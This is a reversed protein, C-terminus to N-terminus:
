KVAAKGSFTWPFAQATSPSRPVECPSLCAGSLQPIPPSASPFPPDSGPTLAGRPSPSLQRVPERPGQSTARTCRAPQESSAVLFAVGLFVSSIPVQRHLGRGAGGAAPATSVRTTEGKDRGSASRPEPFLGGSRPWPGPSVDRQAGGPRTLLGSLRGGRCGNRPAVEPSSPGPHCTQACGAGQVTVYVKAGRDNPFQALFCLWTRWIWKRM